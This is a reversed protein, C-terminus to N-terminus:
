PLTWVYLDTNKANKEYKLAELGSIYSSSISKPLPPRGQHLIEHFSFLEVNKGFRVNKNFM